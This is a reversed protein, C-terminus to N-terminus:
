PRIDIDDHGPTVRGDRGVSAGRYIAPDLGAMVISTIRMARNTSRMARLAHLAIKSAKM